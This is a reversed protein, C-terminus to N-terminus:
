NFKSIRCLRYVCKLEENEIAQKKSCYVFGLAVKTIKNTLLQDLTM